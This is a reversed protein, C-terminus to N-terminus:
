DTNRSGNIDRGRIVKVRDPRRYYVDLSGGGVVRGPVPMKKKKAFQIFHALSPRDPM